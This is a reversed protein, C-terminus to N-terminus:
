TGTVIIVPVNSISRLTRLMDLGNSDPLGLDLVILDAAEQRM